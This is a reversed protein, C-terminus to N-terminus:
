KGEERLMPRVDGELLIMPAVRMRSYLYGIGEKDGPALLSHPDDNTAFGTVHSAIRRHRLDILRFVQEQAWGTANFRGVEDILLVPVNCLHEWYRDGRVSQSIKDRLHQLIDAMNGYLAPTKHQIFECALIKLAFSKGSGFDGYFTLWGAHGQLIKVMADRAAKRQANRTPGSADTKAWTVYRWDTLTLGQEGVQLGSQKILWEPQRDQRCVPCPILKGFAPHGFPVDRIVHGVDGCQGCVKPMPRGAAEAEFALTALVGSTLPAALSLDPELSVGALDLRRRKNSTSEEQGNQNM